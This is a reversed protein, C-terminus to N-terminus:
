FQENLYFNHINKPIFQIYPNKIFLALEDWYKLKIYFKEIVHYEKRNVYDHIFIITDNRIKNFLDLTCAVRFRGDVLIIDANYDKKYAQIYKKWDKIDTNIGPYGFSTVNLDITIYNAKIGNEKLKNHWNLDSEVSYTKVKYFSALNTSGGSGFEFYINKPNMFFSFIQLDKDSMIPKFKIEKNLPWIIYSRKYKNIIEEYSSYNKLHINFQIINKNQVYLIKNAFFKRKIKIDLYILIISFCIIFIYKSKKSHNLYIILNDKIHM